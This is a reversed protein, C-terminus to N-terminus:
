KCYQNWAKIYEKNHVTLSTMTEHNLFCLRSGVGSASRWRDCVYCRFGRSGGQHWWRAEYKWPTYSGYKPIWIKGGNAIMNAAKAMIVCKLHAAMAKGEKPSLGAFVPIVKKADLKLLKCSAAFTLKKIDQM